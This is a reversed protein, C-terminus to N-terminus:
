QLAKPRYVHYLTVLGRVPIIVLSQPSLALVKTTPVRNCHKQSTTNHSSQDATTYLEKIPLIVLSKMIQTVQSKIPLIALRETLIM